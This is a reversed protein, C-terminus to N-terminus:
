QIVLNIAETVDKAPILCTGETCLFFLADDAVTKEDFIPLRSTVGKKALLVHPMSAERITQVDVDKHNGVCVFEYLSFVEHNLLMGWNSYGSGYKEMGDYVNALMRKARAVYDGEQFYKGLYYLNRAMVSNSAPIVNDNIEMKRAILKTDSATFFFMNSVPDGFNAITYETLQRAQMLWDEDFTITYLAIFAEIVHAYDDLFGEINSHGKKYNRWLGQDSRIQNEILWKANKLALRLFADEKFVSYADCLGKLLMANWSTLCKDDLGPRVREDRASMLLENVRQVQEELEDQTWSMKQCFATDSQRRLLIYNDDEWYGQQNVEYFDNVWEFENGLVAKLEEVKWVYFKGEVGESDADLASYFAGSEDLMERELWEITQHVVRKYLPKKYTKYAKSYLSILQGNDYGMKEFHPVKWLMDVSYRSFGGGIQDYIGGNAIRDLTTEVYDLVKQNHSNLAYDLLFEYNSPLPFKPAKTAGGYTNDFSKSWRLILEDLKDESFDFEASPKTILESAIIGEHLNTAYEETKERENEYTYQLSKLIHMWQEKPFYTGGYIPRGDPLVFCNLPWGGQQTMIQVATMYVQDVDPREERDVKVNIFFKNMLAAVEEDEFSEHEMVHCWHCASYGVSILVLKNESKAREFVADSWAVWDVPNHAHQLLYPSSEKKLANTYKEM